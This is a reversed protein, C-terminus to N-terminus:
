DIAFVGQPVQYMDSLYIHVHPVQQIFEGNIMLTYEIPQYGFQGQMQTVLQECIVAVLDESSTMRYPVEGEPLVTVEFTLPTVPDDDSEGPWIQVGSFQVGYKVLTINRFYWGLNQRTMNNNYLTFKVEVQLIQPLEGLIKTRSTDESASARSVSTRSKGFLSKLKRCVWVLIDVPFDIWNVFLKKSMTVSLYLVNVCYNYWLIFRKVLVTSM